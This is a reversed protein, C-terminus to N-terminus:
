NSTAAYRALKSSTGNMGYELNRRCGANPSCRICGVVFRYPFNLTNTKAPFLLDPPTSSRCRELHFCSKM